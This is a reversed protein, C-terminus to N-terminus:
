TFLGLITDRLEDLELDKSIIQQIGETRAEKLPGDGDDAFGTMLAFPIDRTTTDTQIQRYLEVGSMRPMNMDSVIADPEYEALAALAQQADGVCHVDVEDELILEVIRGFALDDEVLLLRRQTM